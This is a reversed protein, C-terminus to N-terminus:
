LLTTKSYKPSKCKNALIYVTPYLIFISVNVISTALILNIDTNYSNLINENKRVNIFDGSTYDNYYYKRISVIILSILSCLFVPSFLFYLIFFLQNQNLNRNFCHICSYRFFVWPLACIFVLLFKGICEGMCAQCEEGNDIHRCIDDDDCNNLKCMGECPIEKLLFYIGIDIPIFLTLSFMIVSLIFLSNGKFKSNMEDVDIYRDGKEKEEKKIDEKYPLNLFDRNLYVLGSIKPNITQDYETINNIDDKDIATKVKTEKINLDMLINREVEENSYHIYKDGFQYTKYSEKPNPNTSNEDIYIRNIPCKTNKDLKLCLFEFYDNIKGCKTKGSPCKENESIIDKFLNIEFEQMTKKMYTNRWKSINVENIKGFIDKDKLNDGFELNMILNVKPKEEYDNLYIGYFADEDFKAGVLFGFSLCNMVLIIIYAITIFTICWGSYKECM